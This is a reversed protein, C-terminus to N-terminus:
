PNNQVYHGLLWWMSVQKCTFRYMCQTHWISHVLACPTCMCISVTNGCMVTKVTFLQLHCMYVSISVIAVCWGPECYVVVHPVCMCISVNNGCLVTKNWLWSCYKACVHQHHCHQQWYRGTEYHALAPPTFMCICADLLYPYPSKEAMEYLKTVFNKTHSM